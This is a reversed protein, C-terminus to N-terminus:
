ILWLEVQDYKLRLNGFPVYNKDLKPVLSDTNFTTSKPQEVKM